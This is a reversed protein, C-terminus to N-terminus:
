RWLFQMPTCSANHFIEHIADGFNDFKLLYLWRSPLIYLEEINDNGDCRVHLKKVQVKMKQQKSVNKKGVDIM